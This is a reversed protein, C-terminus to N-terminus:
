TGVSVQVECRAGLRGCRVGLGLIDKGGTVGDRDVRGSNEARVGGDTSLSEWIKASWDKM